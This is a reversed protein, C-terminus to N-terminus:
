GTASRDQFVAHAQQVTPDAQYADIINELQQLALRRLHEPLLALRVALVEMLAVLQLALDQKGAQVVRVAMDIKRALPMERSQNAQMARRRLEAEVALAHARYADESM